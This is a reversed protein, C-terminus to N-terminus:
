RSGAAARFSALDGWEDPEDLPHADYAAYAADWEAARRRALLAELAEAILASDSLGSHALRASELLEADVTTSIRARAM